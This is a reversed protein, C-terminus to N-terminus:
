AEKLPQIGSAPAYRHNAPIDLSEKLAAIVNAAVPDVPNGMGLDILDVGKARLGANQANIRSALYPPLLSLRGDELPPMGELPPLEAPSKAATVPREKTKVSPM